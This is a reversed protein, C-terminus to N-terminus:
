RTEIIKKKEQPWVVEEFYEKAIETAKKRFGIKAVRAGIGTQQDDIKDQNFELLEEETLNSLWETMALEKTRLEIERAKQQQLEKALLYERMAEEKPSLVKEPTKSSYPMGKKLIATLVVAPSNNFSSAVNNHKLDYALSNISDQVINPPLSIEPNKKYERYIQILHSSGFGIYSLPTCDIEETEEYTTTNIISSSVNSQLPTALPTALPTKNQINKKNIMLTSYVEQSFRFIRSAHQSSKSVLVEFIQKKRLRNIINRLQEPKILLLDLLIKTSIPPSDLSCNLLCQELVFSTLELEKGSLFGIYRNKKNDSSSSNALPAALPAAKPNSVSQEQVAKPNSVSQEQVAKPNSVSQEQVALPSSVSQEQVALPSEDPPQKEIEVKVPKKNTKLCVKPESSSLKNKPISKDKTHSLSHTIAKTNKSLASFNGVRALDLLDNMKDSSLKAM